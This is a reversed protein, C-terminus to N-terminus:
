QSAPTKADPPLDPDDPATGDVSAVPRFPTTPLMPSPPVFPLALGAKRAKDEAGARYSALLALAEPLKKAAILADFKVTLDTIEKAKDQGPIKPLGMKEQAESIVNRWHAFEDSARRLRPAQREFWDDGPILKGIAEFVKPLVWLLGVISPLIYHANDILPQFNM